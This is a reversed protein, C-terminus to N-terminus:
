MNLTKNLYIAGYVNLRYSYLFTVHSSSRKYILILEYGRLKRKDLKKFFHEYILILKDFFNFENIM